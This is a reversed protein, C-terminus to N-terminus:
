HRGPEVDSRAGAWSAPLEVERRFWMVGNFDAFGREEWSGPLAITQWPADDLDPSQWNAKTGPHPDHEM